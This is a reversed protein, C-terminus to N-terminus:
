PSPSPLVHGSGGLLWEAIDRPSEANDFVLLWRERERLETLVAM